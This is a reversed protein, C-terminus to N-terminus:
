ICADCVRLGNTAPQGCTECLFEDDADHDDVVDDEFEVESTQLQQYEIRRSDSSQADAEEDEIEVDDDVEDKGSSWSDLVSKKDLEQMVVAATTWSDTNSGWSDNVGSFRAGPGFGAGLSIVARLNAGNKSNHMDMNDIAGCVGCPASM